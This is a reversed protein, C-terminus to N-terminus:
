VRVGICTGAHWVFRSRVVFPGGASPAKISQGASDAAWAVRQPSGQVDRRGCVFRRRSRSEDTVKRRQSEVSICHGCRWTGQVAVLRQKVRGTGELADHDAAGAHGSLQPYTQKNRKEFQHSCTPKIRNIRNIRDMRDMRDMRNIRDIRHSAGGGRGGGGGGCSCGGEPM